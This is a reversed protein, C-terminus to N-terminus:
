WADKVNYENFERSIIKRAGPAFTRWWKATIASAARRQMLPMARRKKWKHKNSM